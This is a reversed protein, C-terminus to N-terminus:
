PQFLFAPAQPEREHQRRQLERAHLVGVLAIIAGLFGSIFVEIIM